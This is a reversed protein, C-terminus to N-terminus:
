TVNAKTLAICAPEETETASTLLSAPLGLLSLDKSEQISYPFVFIGESLLDSTDPVLGGSGVSLGLRTPYPPSLSWASKPLIM